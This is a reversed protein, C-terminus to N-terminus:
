LQALVKELEAIEERHSQKLIAYDEYDPILALQHKHAKILSIVKEREKAKRDYRKASLIVSFRVIFLAALAIVIYKM